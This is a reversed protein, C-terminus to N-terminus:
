DLLEDRFTAAKAVAWVLMCAEAAHSLDASDCRWDHGAWALVKLALQVEAGSRRLVRQELVIGGRPTGSQTGAHTHLM